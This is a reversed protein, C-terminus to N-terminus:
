KAAKKLAEAEIFVHRVEPHRERISKELEDVVGALANAQLGAKFTLSMNLLIDNPALHM